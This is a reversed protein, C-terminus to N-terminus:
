ECSDNLFFYTDTSTTVIDLHRFRGGEFTGSSTINPAGRGFFWNEATEAAM